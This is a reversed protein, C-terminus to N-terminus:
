RIAGLFFNRRFFVNRASLEDNAESRISETVIPAREHIAIRVSVSGEDTRNDESSFDEVKVMM